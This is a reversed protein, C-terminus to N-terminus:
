LERLDPHGDYETQEGAAARDRVRQWAAHRQLVYVPIAEVGAIAALAYRHFGETWIIEGNRGILVMPELEHIRTADVPEDYVVGRNPRYGDDRISEYLADIAPLQESSVAEMSDFGRYSGDEDIRERVHDYYETEVWPRDKEFRQRLGVIMPTEDLRTTEPPRDWGGGRVRGLGWLLSVVTWREVRAPPVHLLSWPDAPAHWRRANAHATWATRRRFQDIFWM